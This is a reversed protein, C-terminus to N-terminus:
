STFKVYTQNFNGGAEGDAVINVYSWYAHHTRLLRLGIRNLKLHMTRTSEGPIASGTWAGIIRTTWKINNTKLIVVKHRITREQVYATIQYKPCRTSQACRLTMTLIGRVGKISVARLKAPIVSFVPPPAPQDLPQRAWSCTDQNQECAPLDPLEAAWTFNLQVNTDGDDPFLMTLGGAGTAAGVSCSLQCQNANLIIDRHGWCGTPDAATCDINTSYTTNAQFGDQYVWFLFASLVNQGEAWISGWGTPTTTTQGYWPEYVLSLQYSNADLEPDAGADAGVQSVQDWPDALGTEPVLGRATRELQAMVFLQQPITLASWNSPLILPGLSEDQRLTNYYAVSDCLQDSGPCNAPLVDGGGTDNWQPNGPPAPGGSIGGVVDGTLTATAGDWTATVTFPGPTLESSLIPMHAVGNGLSGGQTPDSSVWGFLDFGAAGTIAVSVSGVMPTGNCTLLLSPPIVSGYGNPIEIPATSSPTIAAGSACTGTDAAAGSTMVLGLGILAVLVALLLRLRVFTSGGWLLAQGGCVRITIGSVIGFVM